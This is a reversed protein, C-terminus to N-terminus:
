KKRKSQDKEEMQRWTYHVRQIVTVNTFIALIWVVIPMISEIAAGLFVLLIREPREMVGVNCKPILTEARARTYPTLATGMLAAGLLIQYLIMGRRSYYILLGVLLSLDSYRDLVSDLFSGFASAQRCNRAVAGDLIDFFGALVILSCGQLWEGVAIAWAALLNVGLGIFTLTNPRLGLRQAIKSTGQLFPDLGDGILAKLM